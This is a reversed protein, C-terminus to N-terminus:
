CNLKIDHETPFKTKIKNAIQLLLNIDDKPHREQFRSILYLIYAWSTFFVMM